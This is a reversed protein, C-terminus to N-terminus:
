SPVAPTDQRVSSGSMGVEPGEIDAENSSTAPSVFRRSDDVAVLMCGQSLHSPRCPSLAELCSQRLTGCSPDSRFPRSIERSPYQLTRGLGSGGIALKTTTFNVDCVSNNMASTATLFLIPQQTLPVLLRKDSYITSACESAVSSYTANRIPGPQERSWGLSLSAFLDRLSGVRLTPLYLKSSSLRFVRRASSCTATLGRAIARRHPLHCQSRSHGHHEVPFPM